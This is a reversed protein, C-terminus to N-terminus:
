FTVGRFTLATRAAPSKPWFLLSATSVVVVVIGATVLVTAINGDSRADTNLKLGAADCQHAANCHGGADNWTSKGHAAFYTGVGIAAAGLVIGGFGVIPGTISRAPALAVPAPPSPAEVVPEAALIEVSVTRASPAGEAVDVRSSFPKKGPATAEVVHAGPDVPIATGWVTEDIAVGDRTVRLGSVAEAVTIALTSLKPQLADSKKRAFEARNPDNRTMALSNAARYNSWASALRGRRENCDGLNLLTGVAPELRQSAELKNCAEAFEGADLLKRGESFLSEAGVPDVPPDAARVPSALLTVGLLARVFPRM